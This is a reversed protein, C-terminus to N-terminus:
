LYSSLQNTSNRDSLTRGSPNTPSATNTVSPSGSAKHVHPGVRSHDGAQDVDEHVGLLGDRVPHSSPSSSPGSSGSRSCELPAGLSSPSAPAVPKTLSVSTFGFM